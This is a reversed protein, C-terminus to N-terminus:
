PKVDEVVFMKLTIGAKKLADVVRSFDNPTGLKRAIKEVSVGEYFWKVIRENKTSKSM